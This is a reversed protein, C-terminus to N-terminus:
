GEESMCKVINLVGWLNIGMFLGVKIGIKIVLWKMVVVSVVDFVKIM